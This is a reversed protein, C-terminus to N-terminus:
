MAVMGNSWCVLYDLGSDTPRPFYVRSRHSWPLPTSAYRQLLCAFITVSLKIEKLGDDQDPNNMNRVWSFYVWSWRLVEPGQPSPPCWQLSASKRDQTQRCLARSSTNKYLDNCCKITTLGGWALTSTSGSSLVSQLFVLAKAGSLICSLQHAHPLDHFSASIGPKSCLRDWYCTEHSKKNTCPSQPPWSDNIM